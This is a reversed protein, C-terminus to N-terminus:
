AVSWAFAEGEPLLAQLGMWATVVLKGTRSQREVLLDVEELTAVAYRSWAGVITGAVVPVLKAPVGAAFLRGNEPVAGAGDTGIMAVLEGWRVGAAAAAAITFPAVAAAAVAGLLEGDIARGMGLSLAVAIETAVQDFGRAKQVSRPVEIRVAWQSLADRHM